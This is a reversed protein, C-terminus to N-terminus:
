RRENLLEKAEEYEKITIDLQERLKLIEDKLDKLEYIAKNRCSSKLIKSHTILHNLNPTNFINKNIKEDDIRIGYEVVYTNCVENAYEIAELKDKFVKYHIAKKREIENYPYDGLQMYVEWKSRNKVVVMQNDASM